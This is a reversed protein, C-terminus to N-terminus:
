KNSPSQDSNNPTSFKGRKIDDQKIFYERIKQEVKKGIKTKKAM